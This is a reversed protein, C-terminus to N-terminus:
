EINLQRFVPAGRNGHLDVGRVTITIIRGSGGVTPITLGFRVTDAGDGPLPAYNVDGGAIAFYVTDVGGPDVTRGGVIIPEGPALTTDRSPIDIDTVPGELDLGSGNTPLTFREREDCGTVLTILALWGANKPM